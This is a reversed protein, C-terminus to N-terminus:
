AKEGIVPLPYYRAKKENEDEFVVDKYDTIVDYLTSREIPHRGVHRILEVLQQTSM